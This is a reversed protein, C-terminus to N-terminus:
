SNVMGEFVEVKQSRTFYDQARYLHTLMGPIDEENMNKLHEKIINRKETEYTGIFYGDTVFSGLVAILTGVAAYFLSSTLLTPLNAVLPTLLIKDIPYSSDYHQQLKLNLESLSFLHRHSQNRLISPGDLITRNLTTWVWAMKNKFDIDSLIPDSM